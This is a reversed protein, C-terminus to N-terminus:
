QILIPVSPRSGYGVIRKIADCQLVGDCRKYRAIEGIILQAYIDGAFLERRHYVFPERIISM